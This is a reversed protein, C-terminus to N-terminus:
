TRMTFVTAMRGLCKNRLFRKLVGLRECAKGGLILRELM